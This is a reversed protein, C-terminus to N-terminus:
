SRLFGKLGDWRGDSTNRECQCTRENLNTGCSPCLGKCDPSCLPKLGVALILTQRVVDTVDAILDAGHVYVYDEDDIVGAESPKPTADSRIIFDTSESLDTEYPRACRFCDIMVTATATGQCFYEEGSKQISLSFVVRDVQTVEPTFPAIEGPNAELTVTVPFDDFERLDIVM